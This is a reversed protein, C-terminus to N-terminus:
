PLFRDNNPKGDIPCGEVLWSRYRAILKYGWDYLFSPLFFPWGLLKWWGGLLWLTRFAGKGFYYTKPNTKYNEVLVSTHLMERYHEPVMKKATEGQLPAFLFLKKKDHKSVFAISKNCFGCSGDFFILHDNM